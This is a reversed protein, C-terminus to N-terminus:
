DALRFSRMQLYDQLELMHDRRAEARRAYDEFLKGEVRLQAAVLALVHAPPPESPALAQGPFRLACPQVAFGLRNSSRRKSRIRNMDNATFIYHEM